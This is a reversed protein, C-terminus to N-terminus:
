EGPINDNPVDIFRIGKSRSSKIAERIIKYNYWSSERAILQSVSIHGQNNRQKLDNVILQLYEERNKNDNKCLTQHEALAEELARTFSVKKTKIKQKTATDTQSIIQQIQNDANVKNRKAKLRINFFQIILNSQKLEPTWLVLDMKKCTLREIRIMAKTLM